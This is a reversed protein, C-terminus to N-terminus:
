GAFAIWNLFIAVVALAVEVSFGLIFPKFGIVKFKKFDVGLGIGSLALLILFKSVEVLYKSIQPTLIGLSNLLALALFGLIFTPFIKVKNVRENSATSISKRYFYTVLLVVPVIMINRTLKITTAIKGAAESYIFGAAVVQSTDNIATAAWAGFLTDSMGLAFGVMPYILVGLVGFLTVIGLAMAIEEDEADILPAITVIATNGCICVGVAILIKKRLSVNLRKGLFFTLAFVVCVLVIIVILGKGGLSAIEKFSIGAGLLVIAIKLFKGLGLKIGKGFIEKNPHLTNAIIIGVIVAIFVKGIYSPFFRSLYTSLLTITLLMLIGPVYKKIYPLKV